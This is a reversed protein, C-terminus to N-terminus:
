QAHALLIFDQILEMAERPFGPTIAFSKQSLHEHDVPFNRGSSDRLFNLIKLFLPPNHM